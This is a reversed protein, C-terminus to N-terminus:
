RKKKKKTTKKLDFIDSKKISAKPQKPLYDPNKLVKDVAKKIKDMYLIAHTTIEASSM